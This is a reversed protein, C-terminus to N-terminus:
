AGARALRLADELDPPLPETVDVPDGTVPHQFQLRQSHLFPRHLGLTRALTTTARGYVPDGVVQHHIHALHVRIQHTRGTGLHVELLSTAGLAELVRFETVAERGGPVVGMKTRDRRSRGMPAEIRGTSMNFTGAVLALYTRSVERRGMAASLGALAEDTKAVVMLGSTDKDLRHVIGPRGEGASPALPMRTALAEVLTASASGPAPHVVVGAPKAVVALYEDEFVIRFPASTDVVVESSHRRAEVLDGARLRYSKIAPRGGVTVSGDEIMGQVETRAIGSAGALWADLRSDSDAEQVEFREWDSM